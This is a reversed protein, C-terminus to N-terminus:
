VPLKCNGPGFLMSRSAIREISSIDEELRDEEDLRLEDLGDLWLLSDLLEETLEDLLEDLKDVLELEQMLVLLLGDLKLEDLLEDLEDLLGDESDDEDQMLVLLEDNDTEDLEQM